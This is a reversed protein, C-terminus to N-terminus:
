SHGNGKKYNIDKFKEKCTEKENTIPHKGKKEQPTTAM